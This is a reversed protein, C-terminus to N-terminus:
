KVKERNIQIQNTNISKQTEFIGNKLMGHKDPVGQTSAGGTSANFNKMEHEEQLAHRTQFREIIDIVSQRRMLKAIAAGIGRSESRVVAVKEALNKETKMTM